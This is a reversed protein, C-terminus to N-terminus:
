KVMVTKVMFLLVGPLAKTPEFKIRKKKAWDTLRYIEKQIEEVTKQWTTNTTWLGCDDAYLSIDSTAQETTPCDGTWYNWLIPSLVSGQPVGSKLRVKRSLHAGM